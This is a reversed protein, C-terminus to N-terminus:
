DLPIRMASSANPRPSFMGMFGTYEVVPIIPIGRTIPELLQGAGYLDDDEM